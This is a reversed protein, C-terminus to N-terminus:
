YKCILYTLVKMCTIINVQHTIVTYLTSVLLSPKIYIHEFSSLMKVRLITKELNERLSTIGICRAICVTLSSLVFKKHITGLIQVNTTHHTFSRLQIIYQHATFPPHTRIYSFVSLFNDHPLRISKSLLDEDFIPLYQFDLESSYLSGKTGTRLLFHVDGQCDFSAHLLVRRVHKFSIVRSVSCTTVNMDTIVPADQVSSFKYNFDLTTKSGSFCSLCVSGLFLFFVIKRSQIGMRLLFRSGDWASSLLLLVQMVHKYFIVCSM